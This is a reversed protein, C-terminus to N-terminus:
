PMWCPFKLSNEPTVYSQIVALEKTQSFKRPFIENKSILM